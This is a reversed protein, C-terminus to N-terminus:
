DSDEYELINGRRIRRGPANGPGLVMGFRAARRGHLPFETQHAEGATGSLHCFTARDFPFDICPSHPGMHACGFFCPLQYEFTVAPQNKVM